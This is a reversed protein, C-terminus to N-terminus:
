QTLVPPADGARFAVITLTAEVPSAAAAGGPMRLRLSQGRLQLDDILMPPSAQEIGALLRVLVPWDASVSIRLAVRRYQARQEAPLTELSNLSAGADRAMAQVLEQLTAGAIADTGGDLVAIPPAAAAGAEAQKRLAPLTEALGAMRAALARRRTLAESRADYWGLAPSVVGLWLVVVGLLTVGLAMLRGRRGTPLSTM